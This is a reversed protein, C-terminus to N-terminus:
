AIRGVHSQNERVELSGIKFFVFYSGPIGVAHNSLRRGRRAGAHPVM